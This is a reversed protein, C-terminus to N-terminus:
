ISKTCFFNQTLFKLRVKIVFQQRATSKSASKKTKRHVGIKTLYKKVTNLHVQIKWGLERYSKASRGATQKKLLACKKGSDIKREQKKQKKFRKITFIKFRLLKFHEFTERKGIIQTKMSLSMKVFEFRVLIRRRRLISSPLDITNKM